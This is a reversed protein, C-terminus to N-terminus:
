ETTPTVNSTKRHAMVRRVFDSEEADKGALLREDLPPVDVPPLLLAPEVELAAAISYLTHIQIKQRGRELNTISTRTLGVRSALADQTLKLVERRARILRGLGEYVREGSLERM